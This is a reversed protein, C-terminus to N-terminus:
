LKILSNLRQFVNRQYILLVQIKLALTFAVVCMGAAIGGPEHRAAIGGAICAAPVLRVFGGLMMGTTATM